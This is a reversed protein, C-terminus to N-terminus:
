SQLDQRGVTSADRCEVVSESIQVPWDMGDRHFHSLITHRLDKFQGPVLQKLVRSCPHWLLTDQIMSNLTLIRGHINTLNIVLAERDSTRAILPFLSGDDMM